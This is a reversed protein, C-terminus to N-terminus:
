DLQRISTLIQDFENRLGPANAVMIGETMVSKLLDLILDSNEQIHEEFWAIPSDKESMQGATRIILNLLPVSAIQGLTTERTNEDPENGVLVEGDGIGAYMPTAMWKDILREIHESTVDFLAENKEEPDLDELEKNWDVEDQKM